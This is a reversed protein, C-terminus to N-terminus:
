PKREGGPEIRRRGLGRPEADEPHLATTEESSKRATASYRTDVMM